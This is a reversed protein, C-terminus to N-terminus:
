LRRSVVGASWNKTVHSSSPEGSRVSSNISSIMLRAGLLIWYSVNLWM